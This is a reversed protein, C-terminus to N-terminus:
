FSFWIFRFKTQNIKLRISTKRCFRWNIVSLLSILTLCTLLKESFMNRSPNNFDFKCWTKGICYIWECIFWVLGYSFHDWLSWRILTHLQEATVPPIFTGSSASQSDCFSMMLLLRQCRQWILVLVYDTTQSLGSVGQINSSFRNLINQIMKPVFLSFFVFCFFFMVKIFIIFHTLILYQVCLTLHKTSFDKINFHHMVNINKTEIFCSNNDM